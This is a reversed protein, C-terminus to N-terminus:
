IKERKGPPVAALIEQFSVVLPGGGAGTIAQAPRGYVRDGMSEAVRLAFAHDGKKKALGEQVRDMALPLVNECAEVFSDAKQKAYRRIERAALKDVRSMKKRGPGPKCGKKFLIKPM